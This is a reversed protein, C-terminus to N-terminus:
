QNNALFPNVVTVGDYDQSHSFDESYITRCGLERAAAIIAADWYSLQFRDRIELASLVTSPHRSATPFKLWTKVYEIASTHPLQFQRKASTAIHYFEGAVQVSWGWNENLLLQRAREAKVQEEPRDSLAYLLVNTDVFAEANM